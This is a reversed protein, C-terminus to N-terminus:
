DIFTPVVNAKDISDIPLLYDHGDVQIVIDGEEIATLLGTIKRRGEFAMRLRLKIMQGINDAYQELKFLPRDLGPSSVELNYEGVIPDEVDLVASVQHSVEVCIDINIGDVHDIYVLLKSHKGQSLYELGWFICDCAEVAPAIITELQSTTAMPHKEQVLPAYYDSFYNAQKNKKPLTKEFLLFLFHTLQGM